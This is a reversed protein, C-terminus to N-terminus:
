EVRPEGAGSLFCVKEIWDVTMMRGLIARSRSMGDERRCHITEAYERAKPQKRSRHPRMASMKPFRNMKAAPVAHTAATLAAFGNRVYSIAKSKNLPKCPSTLGGGRGM